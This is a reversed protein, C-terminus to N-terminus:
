LGPEEPILNWVSNRLEDVAVIVKDFEINLGDPLYNQDDLDLVADEILSQAKTLQESVSEVVTEIPWIGTLNPDDSRVGYPLNYGPTPLDAM